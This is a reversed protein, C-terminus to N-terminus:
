VDYDFVLVDKLFPRAFASFARHDPHVLYRDREARGPFSLLFCQAFGGDKGEPSHNSGQEIGAIGPVLNKLELFRETVSRHEAETCGEKYAFLVIHRTM